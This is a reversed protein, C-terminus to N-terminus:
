PEELALLTQRSQFVCEQNTIPDIFQLRQALLQLPRTYDGPTPDNIEPYLADNLIPIGLAAMHVRLQHKKGTIPELQYLAVSSNHRVISLNTVSNSPGNTEISRFFFEPDRIIRSEYTQQTIFRSDFPAVAKYTKQIKHDRFIAHYADRSAPNKSFIVLGSTDKDIRHLPIINTNNTLTRVRVLLSEQVFRGSPIVPLFPPKDVVLIHADEHVIREKFPIPIEDPIDRFYVIHTLTTVLTQPSIPEHSQNLIQHTEFRGLWINQSIHPFRSTLFDIASGSDTPSIAVRSSPVGSM